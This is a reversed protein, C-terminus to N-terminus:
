KEMSPRGSMGSRSVSRRSPTISPQDFHEAGADDTPRDLMGARGRDVAVPEFLVANIAGVLFFGHPRLIESLKEAREVGAAICSAIHRQRMLLGGQPRGFGRVISRDRDAGGVREPEVGAARQMGAVGVSVAEHGIEFRFGGAPVLRLTGDDYEARTARGSSDQVAQQRRLDRTDQEAIPRSVPGFGQGLLESRQHAHDIPLISVARQLTAAKQDVRGAEAHRALLLEFDVEAVQRVVGHDGVDDVAREFGLEQGRRAGPAIARDIPEAHQEILRNRAELAPEANAGLHRRLKPRM